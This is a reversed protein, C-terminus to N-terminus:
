LVDVLWGIGQLLRWALYLILAVLLVKFHWPAGPDAGDDDTGTAEARDQAASRAARVAQADASAGRGQRARRVERRSALRTGCNPCTGDAQM